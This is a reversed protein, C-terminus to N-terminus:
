GIFYNVPHIKKLHKLFRNKHNKMLVKYVHRVTRIEARIRTCFDPSIGMLEGSANQATVRCGGSCIPNAECTSCEQISDSQLHLYEERSSAVCHDEVSGLAKHKRDIYRHCPLILGNTDVALLESGLPCPKPQRQFHGLNLLHINYLLSWWTTNHWIIDQAFDELFAVGLQDFAHQVEQKLNNWPYELDLLIEFQDCGLSHLSRAAQDLQLTTPTATARLTIKQAAQKLKIINNVVTTYTSKGSTFIREKNQAEDGDLSVKLVMNFDNVMKLVTETAVTANTVASFHMKKAKRRARKKGYIMTKEIIEPELFPEGGFFCIHLNRLDGSIPYSLYWDITKYATELSMKKPSKPICCYTCRMNCAETVYFMLTEVPHVRDSPKDTNVNLLKLLKQSKTM